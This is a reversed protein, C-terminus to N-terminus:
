TIPLGLTELIKNFSSRRCNKWVKIVRSGSDSPYYTLRRPIRTEKRLNSEYELVKVILVYFIWGTKGNQM